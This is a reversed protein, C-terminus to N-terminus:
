PNMTTLLSCVCLRRWSVSCIRSERFNKPLDLLAGAGLVVVGGLYVLVVAEHGFYAFLPVFQSYLTEQVGGDSARNHAISISPSSRFPTPEAPASM